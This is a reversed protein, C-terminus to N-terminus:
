ANEDSLRVKLSQLQANFRGGPWAKPCLEEACSPGKKKPESKGEEVPELHKEVDQTFEKSRRSVARVQLDRSTETM